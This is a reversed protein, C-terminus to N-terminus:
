FIDFDCRCMAINNNNQVIHAIHTCYTWLINPSFYTHFQPFVLMKGELLQRPTRLHDSVRPDARGGQQRRGCRRATCALWSGHRPLCAASSGHLARHRRPNSGDQPRTFAAADAQDRPTLESSRSPPERTSSPRSVPHHLLRTLHRMGPLLPWAHCPQVSVPSDKRSPRM